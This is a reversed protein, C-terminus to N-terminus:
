DIDEELFSYVPSVIRKVPKERDRELPCPSPLPNPYKIRFTLSDL